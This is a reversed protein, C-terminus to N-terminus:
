DFVGRRLDGAFGALWDASDGTSYVRSVEGRTVTVKGSLIFTMATIETEIVDHEILRFEDPDVGRAECENIFDQLETQDITKFKNTMSSM